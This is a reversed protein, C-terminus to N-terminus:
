GDFERWKALLARVEDTSFSRGAKADQIGQRIKEQVYVEDLIDDITANEPLSEIAARVLAKTSQSATETETTM